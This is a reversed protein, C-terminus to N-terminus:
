TSIGLLDLSFDQDPAVPGPIAIHSSVPVLNVLKNLFLLFLFLSPILTGSTDQSLTARGVGHIQEQGLIRKVRENM